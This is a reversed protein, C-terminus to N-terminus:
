PLVLVPSEDHCFFCLPRISAIGTLAVGVEKETTCRRSTKTLEADLCSAELEKHKAQRHSM